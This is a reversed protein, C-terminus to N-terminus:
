NKKGPCRTFCRVRYTMDSIKNALLKYFATFFTADCADNNNPGAEVAFDITSGLNANVVISYSETSYFAARQWVDVGDVIIHAITGDGCTGNTSSAALVGSIRLPGNTEAVYRRIAWHTALAAVGNDASPHM